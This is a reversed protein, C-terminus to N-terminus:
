CCTGIGPGCVKVFERCSCTISGPCACDCCKYYGGYGSGCTGYLCTATCWCGYGPSTNYGCAGDYTCGGACAAGSCYGSNYSTCYVGSCPTCGCDSDTNACADSASALAKPSKLGEVTFAAVVGFITVSAKHLFRRRDMTKRAIFEGAQEVSTM